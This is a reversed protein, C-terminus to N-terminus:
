TMKLMVADKDRLANAFLDDFEHLNLGRYTSLSFRESVYDVSLVVWM